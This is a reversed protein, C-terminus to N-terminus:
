VLDPLLTRLRALGKLVAPRNKASQMWQPLRSAMSSNSWGTAPDRHRERLTAAVFEELLALHRENYAWLTEGCCSTQLWLSLRDYDDLGRWNRRIERSSWEKKYSCQTCILRRSRFWGRGDKSDPPRSIARGSCRPCVVLTEDMFDSTHQGQDEFRPTAPPSSKPNM